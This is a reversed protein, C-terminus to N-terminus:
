SIGIPYVCRATSPDWKVLQRFFEDAGPAQERLQEIASAASLNAGDRRMRRMRSSEIRLELADFIPMGQIPVLSNSDASVRYIWTKGKGLSDGGKAYIKGGSDAIHTIAPVGERRPATMPIEIQVDKWSAGRDTTKVVKEEEYRAYLTPPKDKERYAILNGIQGTDRTINLIDWSKGADTSRHLGGRWSGVYFVDNIAVAIDVDASM